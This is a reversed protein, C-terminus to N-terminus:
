DLMESIKGWEEGIIQDLYRDLIRSIKRYMRKSHDEM